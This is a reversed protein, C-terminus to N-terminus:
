AKLLQGYFIAFLVIGLILAIIWVIITVRMLKKRKFCVSINKSFRWVSVLAVGLIIAILGTIGHLLSIVSPLEKPAPVVYEPIVALVLSPIMIALIIILHIIVAAGMTKGHERFKAKRKLSYGYILLFLVVIQLILSTTAVAIIVEESVSM